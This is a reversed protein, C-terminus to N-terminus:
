HFEFYYLVKNVVVGDDALPLALCDYYNYDRDSWVIPRDFVFYPKRQEVVREARERVGPFEVGKGTLDIGSRDALETGWLRVRFRPETDFVDVLALRPLHRVMATPPMDRRAPMARTGRRELWLAFMQRMQGDPLDEAAFDVMDALIPRSRSRM